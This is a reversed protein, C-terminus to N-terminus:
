RRREVSREACSDVDAGVILGDNRRKLGIGVFAHRLVVFKEEGRRFQRREVLLQEVVVFLEDSCVRREERRAGIRELQDVHENLLIVAIHRACESGQEVSADVVDLGTPQQVGIAKGFAHRPCGVLDAREGLGQLIGLLVKLEDTLSYTSRM